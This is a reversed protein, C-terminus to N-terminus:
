LRFDRRRIPRRLGTRGHGNAARNIRRRDQYHDTEERRIRDVLSKLMFQLLYPHGATLRYLDDIARPDYGVRNVLPEVILAKAATEDLYYLTIPRM